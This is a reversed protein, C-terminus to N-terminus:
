RGNLFRVVAAKLRPDGIATIHNVGPIRVLQAGPIAAALAGDTAVYPHDNDGNAILVPITVTALGPGGLRIPFGEPWMQLASRALAELDNLPNSSAYMRYALGLPNTIRSPDKARLAEAIPIGANMSEESEDGIGSMIMSTLRDQHHGLLHAGMFAGMSYGLYDAKELKLHDMLALVDRAISAYGYLKQDHPKDSRGHGRCDLAIVQRLPQLAQVWNLAIWNTRIDAGWGHVLVIPRGEGYVEYYIRIGDSTCFGTARAVLRSADSARPTQALVSRPGVLPLTSFACGGAGLRFLLERRTM